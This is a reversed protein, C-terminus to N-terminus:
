GCGPLGGFHIMRPERIADRAVGGVLRGNVERTLAAGTVAGICPLRGADIVQAQGVAQRTMRRIFRGIVELPM